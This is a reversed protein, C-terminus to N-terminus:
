DETIECREDVAPIYTMDKEAHIFGRKFSLITTNNPLTLININRAVRYGTNSNNKSIFLTNKTNNSCIIQFNKSDSGAVRQWEGIAQSASVVGSLSLLSAVCV